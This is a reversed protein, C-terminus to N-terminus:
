QRTGYNPAASRRTGLSNPHAEEYASLVAESLRGRQSVSFGRGRAWARVARLEEVDLSRVPSPRAGRAVPEAKRLVSRARVAYRGLLERLRAADAVGLDVEFEVGDLGFRVTTVGDGRGGDLDDVGEVTVQEGV